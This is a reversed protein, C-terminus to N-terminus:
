GVAAKAHGRKGAYPARVGKRAGQVARDGQEGARNGGVSPSGAAGAAGRVGAKPRPLPGNGAEGPPLMPQCGEAHHRGHGANGGQGQEAAQPPDQGSDLKRLPEGNGKGHGCPSGEQGQRGQQYGGHVARGAVPQDRRHEPTRRHQGPVPDLRHCAGAPGM